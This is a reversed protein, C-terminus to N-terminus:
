FQMPFSCRIGVHIIWPLYFLFCFYIVPYDVRTYQPDVNISMGPPPPSFVTVDSTPIIINKVPINTVHFIQLINIRSTNQQM